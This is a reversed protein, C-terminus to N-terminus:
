EDRGQVDAELIRIRTKLNGILEHHRNSEALLYKFSKDVDLVGGPCCEALSVNFYENQKADRKNQLEVKIDQLRRNIDYITQTYIAKDSKSCSALTNLGEFKSRERVYWARLEELSLGEPEVIKVGEAKPPQVAVPTAKLVIVSGIGGRLKGKVAQRATPAPTTLSGWPQMSILVVEQPNQQGVFYHSPMSPHEFFRDTFGLENVRNVLNFKERKELSMEELDDLLEMIPIPQDQPRNEWYHGLQNRLTKTVAFYNQM